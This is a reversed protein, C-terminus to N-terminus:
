KLPSIIKGKENRQNKSDQLRQFRNEQQSWNVLGSESDRFDKLLRIGLKIDHSVDILDGIITRDDVLWFTHMKKIFLQWLFISQWRLQICNYELANYWNSVHSWNSWLNIEQLQASTTTYMTIQCHLQRIWIDMRTLKWM